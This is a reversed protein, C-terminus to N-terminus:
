TPPPFGLPSLPCERLSAVRQHLGGVDWGLPEKTIYKAIYFAAGRERDYPLIRCRGYRSKWSGWLSKRTPAPSDGLRLLGHSHVRGGRGREVAIFYGVRPGPIHEVWRRTHVLCRDPSPGDPGFRSDFTWTCWCDWEFASLWHGLARRLLLGSQTEREHVGFRMHPVTQSRPSKREHRM